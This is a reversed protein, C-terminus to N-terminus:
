KSPGTQQLMWALEFAREHLQDYRGSAGGHGAPDMNMKLFVEGGPGHSAHLTRLKAVYKAPEWYMVQSDNYSSTVLLNPHPVDALNDYPSYGLMYAFQEKSDVPNGWEEFETITEPLSKDLVTNIVDVFPVGLWAAKCLDPRLNVVAGILLGGASRGSIVLRDRSALKRAVLDDAVAIFDTFTNRKRLMRGDDHWAKGLEGGGRVHAIAHSLGRDLGILAELHFGTGIAYGYAGYGTLHPALTLSRARLDYDFTSDPTIPSQYGFRYAGADFQHNGAPRVSYSPEPLAIRHSSAFPEKQRLDLVRLQPLGSELERLVAFDRLLELGEVMVEPRHPAVEPWQALGPTGISARVIKFNRGGTNTRCWLEAGRHDCEYELAAARPEILKPPVLPARAPLWLQESQTQSRSTVFVLELDRSRSVELDFREDKEELVLEDKAGGLRHRWLRVPRQPAASCAVALLLTAVAYRM